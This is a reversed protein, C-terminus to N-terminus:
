LGSGLLGCVRSFAAGHVAEVCACVLAVCTGGTVFVRLVCLLEPIVKKRGESKTSRPMFTTTKPTQLPFGSPSLFSLYFSRFFDFFPLLAKSRRPPLTM